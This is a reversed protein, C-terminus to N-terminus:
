AALEENKDFFLAGMQERMAQILSCTAMMVSSLDEKRSQRDVLKRYYAINLQPTDKTDHASDREFFVKTQNTFGMFTEIEFLWRLMLLYEESIKIGKAGGISDPEMVLSCIELVDSKRNFKLEVQAFPLSLDISSTYLTTHYVITDGMVGGNGINYSIVSPDAFSRIDDTRDYAIIGEQERWLYLPISDFIGHTGMKKSLIILQARYTSEDYPIVTSIIDGIHVVQDKDVILSVIAWFPPKKALADSRNIGLRVTYTYEDGRRATYVLSLFPQDYGM